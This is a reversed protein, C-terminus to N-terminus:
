QAQAGSLSGPGANDTPVIRVASGPRANQVGQVVLSEGGKLGEEVVWYQGLQSSTRIRQERVKGGEDLVFVFRGTRDLQVAGVPVVPRRRPESPRIIVTVFQGPVLIGDPNPFRARISLTGTGQDIENAVFDIEGKAAYDRGNSLRLTPQYKRAIEAKDPSGDAERLDLVARDTVSFVVRIPDIQVIRALTGSSPGVLSGVAFAAVGIRGTFPAKIVTYSLDLEARRVNAEAALVSARATDRGTQAEDLAVQSVAQTRRLEQNRQLRREADDLTAQAGALNARATSLATEYAVKEIIFLDQGERVMQGEAFPRAEVFGEVRARIDVANLAEVRGIFESTPSVDMEQVPMVGVAPLPSQAFAPQGALTIGLAVGYFLSRSKNSMLQPVFLSM